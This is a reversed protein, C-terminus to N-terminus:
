RQPLTFAFLADGVGFVVYQHGDLAYTMPGNALNSGANVHWLTTGKAADLALLAGSTNGTFLVKGATTLIGALGDDHRWAIKGTHYDIALTFDQRSTLSMDRGAFGEGKGEATRYYVSYVSIANVYFLGTDPDFSPPLWNTAGSSNPVVLTGDQKPEKAPDPIPQGAANIGKTWNTDIFPATLLHEGTARDLVFFYGNRSSQALLKRPKGAFQGDFLV